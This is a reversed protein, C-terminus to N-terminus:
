AAHNEHHISSRWGVPLLIALKMGAVLHRSAPRFSHSDTHCPSPISRSWEGPGPRDGRRSSRHDQYTAICDAPIRENRIGCPESASGGDAHSPHGSSKRTAIGGCVARYDRQAGPSIWALPVRGCQLRNARFVGAPRGHNRYPVGPPRRAIMANPYSYGSAGVSRPTGNSDGTASQIDAV